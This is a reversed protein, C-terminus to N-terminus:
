NLFILKNAKPLRFSSRPAMKRRTRSKEFTRRPLKGGELVNVPPFCHWSWIPRM